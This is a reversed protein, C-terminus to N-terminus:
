ARANLREIDEQTYSDPDAGPVEWGFMSGIEMCRAQLPTVGLEKNLNQVLQRADEPKDLHYIRDDCPIYYGQVGLVVKGVAQQPTSGRLFVFCEHPLKTCTLTLM